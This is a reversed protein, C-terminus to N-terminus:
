GPDGALAARIMGATIATVDWPWRGDFTSDFAGDELDQALAAVRALAAHDAEAHERWAAGDATIVSM